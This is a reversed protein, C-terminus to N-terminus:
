TAQQSAWQRVKEADDFAIVQDGIVQTTEHGKGAIVVCDGDAAHDLAYRIALSRDAETYLKSPSVAAAIDKVIAEPAESRPNDSTVVVKDAKESAALGMMPRKSTDRDGGCGFVVWLRCTEPGEAKQSELYQRGNELVKELADPTHAYDIFVHLRKRTDLIVKEFRGRVQVQNTDVKTLDHVYGTTKVMSLSCLLNSLSLSDYHTQNALKAQWVPKDGNTHEVLISQRGLRNLSFCPGEVSHKELEKKLGYVAVFQAPKKFKKFASMFKEFVSVHVFISADNEAYRIFFNMKAQFYENMTKHLDLHDQSFSTFSLASFKMGVLKQHLISQSAVEMINLKCSSKKAERLLVNLTDPDPTTHPTNVQWRGAECFLEAGLTGFAIHPTKIQALLMSTMQSVSTKGNTGTVGWSCFSKAPDHLARQCSQTWAARANPLVWVPTKTAVSPMKECVLAGIGSLFESTLLSHPDFSTGPYCFFVSESGANRSDTTINLTTNLANPPSDSIAPAGFLDRLDKTQIRLPKKLQTQIEIEKSM